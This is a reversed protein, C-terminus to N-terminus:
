AAKDIRYTWTHIVPECNVDDFYALIKCVTGQVISALRPYGWEEAKRCALSMLWARAGDMIKPTKGPQPSDDLAAM